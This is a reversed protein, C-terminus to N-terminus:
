RQTKGEKTQACATSSVVLFMLNSLYCFLVQRSIKLMVIDLSEYAHKGVANRLSHRNIYVCRRTTWSDIIGTLEVDAASSSFTGSRAFALHWLNSRAEILLFVVPETGLSFAFIAGDTVGPAESPYRYIPTPM